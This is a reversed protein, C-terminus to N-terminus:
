TGSTVQGAVRQPSVSLYTAGSQGNGLEGVTGGGWCYALNDNVSVGCTHHSGLALRSFRLQTDVLTPTLTCGFLVGGAGESESCVDVSLHGLQGLSNSGWCLGEGSLIVGCTHEAGATVSLFGLGDWLIATPATNDGRGATASQGLTNNSWCFVDGSVELGCTHNFGVTVSTFFQTGTVVQPTPVADGSQAGIGLQGVDNQGWCLATGSQTVGCTHFATLSLSLFGEATAVQVPASKDTTTGDGLQGFQNWGWCYASGDTTVGCTYAGGGGDLSAFRLGGAVQQPEPNPADGM